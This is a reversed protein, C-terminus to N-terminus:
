KWLDSVTESDLVKQISCADRQGGGYTGGESVNHPPPLCTGEGSGGM